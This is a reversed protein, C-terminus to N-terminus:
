NRGILWDPVNRNKYQLLHQKENRYYNRYAIIPNLDKYQEPMAQPRKTIGIDVINPNSLTKVLEGSKHTKNYRYQYEKYLVLTMDRLWIWNSLSERAWICCPHNKHTAKYINNPVNDTSYYASCLIQAQECIMKVVHRNYHYQANKIMDEDLYFINM